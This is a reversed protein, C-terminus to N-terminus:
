TDNILTLNMGVNILEGSSKDVMSEGNVAYDRYEHSLFGTAFRMDPQAVYTPHLDSTNVIHEVAM